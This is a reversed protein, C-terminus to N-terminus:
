DEAFTLMMWLVIGVVLLYVGTDFLLPTGLKGIVPVAGPAWLGTMFPLGQLLSFLGSLGALLLGVTVFIRPEAPLARSLANFSNALGYLMLGAAAVLGGVFGGGVENHGRFLLFVSFILLLPIMHRAVAPLILSRHLERGMSRLSERRLKSEEM